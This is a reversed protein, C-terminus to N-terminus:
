RARPVRELHKRLLAVNRLNSRWFVDGIWGALPVVSIVLDVAVNGVMRLLTSAPVGLRRAEWILYAAMGKAALTGIGPILNLFADAGVRVNIGPSRDRQRPIKAAFPIAASRM